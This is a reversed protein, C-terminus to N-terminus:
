ILKLYNLAPLPTPQQHSKAPSTTKADLADEKIYLVYYDERYISVKKVM